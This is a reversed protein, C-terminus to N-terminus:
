RQNLEVGDISTMSHAFVLRINLSQLTQRITVQEAEDRSIRSLDATVIVQVQGSEAARMMAALGPRHQGVACPAIDVFLRAEHPLGAHQAIFARSNELQREVREAQHPAPACRAYIAISGTPLAHM